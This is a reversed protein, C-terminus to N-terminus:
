QGTWGGEHYLNDIESSNLVRNYIHVDDLQGIFDNNSLKLKNIISFDPQFTAQHTNNLVNDVYFQAVLMTSNFCCVIHHWKNYSPISSSIGSFVGNNPPAYGAWYVLGFLQTSYATGDINCSISTCISQACTTDYLMFMTPYQTTPQAAKFWLSLTFSQFQKIPGSIFQNGGSFSFASNVKGFRDACLTAGQILLNYGAGSADNANGNFPYYAILGSTPITATNNVGLSINATTSQGATVTITVSGPNYGSKSVAVAYEGPSVGAIVYKGQADTSVSSTPPM